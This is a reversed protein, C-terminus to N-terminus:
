YKAELILVGNERRMDVRNLFTNGLLITTPFDNMSVIAYVNKVEIAGIRVSDLMLGYGTSMGAATSVQLQEGARYNLGLQKATPLNLAITTAGTDVMFEVALGNIRGPTIFHGGRGSAIRETLKEPTKFQTSIARSLGATQQEGDIELVAQKTDASVLLVGEPSRKGERL